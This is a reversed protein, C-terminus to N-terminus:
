MDFTWEGSTTARAEGEEVIGKLCTLQIGFRDINRFYNIRFIPTIYMGAKISTPHILEGNFYMETVIHDDQDMESTTPSKIVQLRTRLEDPYTAPDSSEKHYDTDMVFRQNSTAGPKYKAPDAWIAAKVSESVDRLFREFGYVEPDSIGPLAFVLKYWRCGGYVVKMRPGTVVLDQDEKTRLNGRVWMASGNPREWPPQVILDKVDEETFKSFRKAYMM